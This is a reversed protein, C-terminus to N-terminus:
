IDSKLFILGTPDSSNWAPTRVSLCLSALQCESNAMNRVRGLVSWGTLVCVCVCKNCLFSRKPCFDCLSTMCQM